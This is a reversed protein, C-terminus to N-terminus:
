DSREHPALTGVVRGRYWVEVGLQDTALEAARALADDDTQYTALEVGAFHNEKNFTPIGKVCTPVVPLTPSHFARLMGNSSNIVRPRKLLELRPKAVLRRALLIESPKAPWGAKDTGV